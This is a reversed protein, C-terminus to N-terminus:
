KTDEPLTGFEYPNTKSDDYYPGVYRYLGRKIKIFFSKNWPSACSRVGANSSNYCVDSPLISGDDVKYKAQIINIIDRRTLEKGIEVDKFADEYIENITM